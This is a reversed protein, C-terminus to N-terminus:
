KAWAGMDKLYQALCLWAFCTMGIFVFAGFFFDTVRKM